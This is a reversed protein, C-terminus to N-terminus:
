EGDVLMGQERIRDLLRGREEESEAEALSKELRNLEERAPSMKPKSAESQAKAM